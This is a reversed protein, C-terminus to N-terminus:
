IKPNYIDLDNAIWSNFHFMLGNIIYGKLIRWSQVFEYQKTKIDQRKSLPYKQLSLTILKEMIQAMEYTEYDYVGLIKFTNMEKKKTKNEVILYKHLREFLDTKTIGVGLCGKGNIKIYYIYIYNHSVENNEPIKLKKIESM